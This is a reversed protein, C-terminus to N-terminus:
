MRKQTVRPGSQSERKRKLPNEAGEKRKGKKWFIVSLKVSESKQRIPSFHSQTYIHKRSGATEPSRRTKREEGHNLTGGKKSKTAEDNPELLSFCFTPAENAAHIGKEGQHDNKEANSTGPSSNLTKDANSVEESTEEPEIVM